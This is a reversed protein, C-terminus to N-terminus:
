ILNRIKAWIIGLYEHLAKEVKRLSNASPFFIGPALRQKRKVWFDTPASIPSMGLKRFLAVARPMHSASTVLIHPDNGIILRVQRAQEKTDKADTVLVIDKEALGLDYAVKAMVESDASCDYVVGGAIILKIEAYMKQVRIAEVLRILSAGSLQSNEPLSPDSLIGGGLVVVWQPFHDVESPVGKSAADMLLAPHQHELFGLLMNPIPQFSLLGFLLIGITILILGHRQKRTFWLLFLGILQVSLCFALPSILGSIIKKLLFM